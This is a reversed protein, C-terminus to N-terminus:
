LLSFHVTCCCICSESAFVDYKVPDSANKALVTTRGSVDTATIKIIFSVGSANSITVSSPSLEVIDPPDSYFELIVPEELLARNEVKFTAQKSKDLLLDVDKTVSVVSTDPIFVFIQSNFAKRCRM